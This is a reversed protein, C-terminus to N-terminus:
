TKGVAKRYETFVVQEFMERTLINLPHAIDQYSGDKMKKSPMAVFLGTNGEIVKVDRIIICEDVKVTVFAKLRSNNEVPIVKVDTIKMAEEKKLINFFKGAFPEPTIGSPTQM